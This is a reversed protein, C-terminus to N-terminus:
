ITVQGGAEITILNACGAIGPNGRRVAVQASYVYSTIMNVGGIKKENVEAFFGYQHHEHGHMLVVSVLDPLNPRGWAIIKPKLSGLYQRHHLM